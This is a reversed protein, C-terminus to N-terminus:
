RFRSYTQLAALHKQVAEDISNRSSLVDATWVALHRNLEAAFLETPTQRLQDSYTITQTRWDLNFAISRDPMTVKSVWKDFKSKSHM